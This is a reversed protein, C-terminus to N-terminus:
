DVVQLNEVGGAYHFLLDFLMYANDAPNPSWEGNYPVSGMLKPGFLLQHYVFDKDPFLNKMVQQISQTVSNSIRGQSQTLSFITFMGGGFPNKENLTIRYEDVFFLTYYPALLSITLQLQFTHQVTSQHVNELQLKVVYNPFQYYNQNDIQIGPLEATLREYLVNSISQKDNCERDIKNTVLRVAEKYGPWQHLLNYQGIPYTKYVNELLKIKLQNDSERSEFNIIHM